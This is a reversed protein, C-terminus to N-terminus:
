PRPRADAAAAAPEPLGSPLRRLAWADGAVVLSVLLLVFGNLPHLAALAVSTDHLAVLLSQLVFLVFALATLGVLRRPLGAVISVVLNVLVLYGFTYAWARHPAFGDASGFAGLGGLFVQVVLCAVFLWALWPFAARAFSRVM